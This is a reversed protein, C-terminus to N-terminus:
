TRRRGQVPRRDRAPRDRRGRAAPDRLAPDRRHLPQPLDDRAALRRDPDREATTATPRACGRRRLRARPRRTPASGAWRSASAASSRACTTRPTATASTARSPPRSRATSTASAAARRRQLDLRPRVAPPLRRDRERAADELQGQGQAQALRRDARGRGDPSLACSATSRTPPPASTSSAAVPGDEAFRASCSAAPLEDVRPVRGSASSRRRGRTGGYGSNFPYGLLKGTNAFTWGHYPCRFASSNGQQPTASSTPRPAHLPQAAPPDRGAQRPDHDGAAPRDVQARLRQARAGRERARRLGLHPVLHARARGRLHGPRHLALRPRPRARDACGM